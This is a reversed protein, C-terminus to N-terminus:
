GAAARQIEECARDFDSVTSRPVVLRRRARAHDHRLAARAVDHAANVSRDILAYEIFASPILVGATAYRGDLCKLVIGYADCCIRVPRGPEMLRFWDTAEKLAQVELEVSSGAGRVASRFGEVSVWAWAGRKGHADFSADCHVILPDAM